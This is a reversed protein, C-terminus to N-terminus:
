HCKEMEQFYAKWCLLSQPNAAPCKIEPYKIPDVMAHCFNNTLGFLAFNFLEVFKKVARLM